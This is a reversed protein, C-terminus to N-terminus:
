WSGPLPVVVHAFPTGAWRVYAGAGAPATPLGDLAAEHPVLIMLYPGAIHWDPTPGIAFPDAQSSGADGALRFAVAPASMQPDRREFRAREFELGSGDTCIPDRGSAAIAPRSSPLCYWGNTGGRLMAFTGGPASPWELITAHTAIAPPGGRHADAIRRGVWEGVEPAAPTGAVDRQHAAAAGQAVGGPGAHLRDVATEALAACGLALALTVSLVRKGRAHVM